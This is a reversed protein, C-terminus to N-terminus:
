GVSDCMQVDAKLREVDNERSGCRSGVELIGSRYKALWKALKGTAVASTSQMNTMKIKMHDRKKSVLIDRMSTGEKEFLLNYSNVFRQTPVMARKTAFKSFRMESRFCICVLIVYITTFLAVCGVQIIYSARAIYSTLM